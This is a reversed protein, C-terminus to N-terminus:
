YKVVIGNNSDIAWESNTSKQCSASRGAPFNVYEILKNNNILYVNGTICFSYSKETESLKRKFIADGNVTIDSSGNITIIDDFVADGYINLKANGNLIINENFFANGHVDITKKGRIQVSENFFTSSPFPLSKNTDIPNGIFKQYTDKGPVTQDVRSSGSDTKVLNITSYLTKEADQTVGKSTFFVSIKSSSETTPPQSSVFYKNSEEVQKDLSNNSIVKNNFISKFLQDYDPITQKENDKKNQNSTIVDQITKKAENNAENIFRRVLTEYHAVGMEALDTARNIEDTKNFQKRASLAMGSLSLALTFTITIILLVIILAYGKENKM